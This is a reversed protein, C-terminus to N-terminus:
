PETEKALARNVQRVAKVHLESESLPKKGKALRSAVIAQKTEALRANTRKARAADRAKEAARLRTKLEAAEADAAKEREKGDALEKERAARAEDEARLDEARVFPLPGIAGGSPGVALFAATLLASNDRGARAEPSPPGPEPPPTFTLPNKQEVAIV